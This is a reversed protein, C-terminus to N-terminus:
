AVDTKTLVQIPSRILIDTEPSLGESSVLGLDKASSKRRCYSNGSPILITCNEIKKLAGKRLWITSNYKGKPRGLKPKSNKSAAIASSYSPPPPFGKKLLEMERARQKRLKKYENIMQIQRAKDQLLLEFIEYLYWKLTTLIIEM